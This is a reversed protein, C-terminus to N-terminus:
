PAITAGPLTFIPRIPRPGPQVLIPRVQYDFNLNDFNAYVWPAIAQSSFRVKAIAAGTITLTQWVGPTASGYVISLFNGAADYAAIYPRATPTGLGEVFATGRVDISVQHPLYQTSFTAEVAGYRNDFGSYGTAYISVGNGPNGTTRAFASGPVCNPTNNCVISAFTVGAAAYAADVAAGNAIPAGNPDQDFNVSAHWILAEASTSTPEAGEEDFASVACGSLALCFLPAALALRQIM